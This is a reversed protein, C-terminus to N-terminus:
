EGSKLLKDLEDMRQMVLRKGEDQLEQSAPNGQADLISQKDTAKDYRATYMLSGDPRYFKSEIGTNAQYTLNHLLKGNEGYIARNASKQTGYTHSILRNKLDYEWEEVIRGNEYLGISKLRGKRSYVAMKGNLGIELPTSLKLKTDDPIIVPSIQRMGNDQYFDQIVARGEATRGLLMRYYGGKAPKANERHEADYYAVIQKEPNAIQGVITNDSEFKAITLLNSQPKPVSGCASLLFAAALAPLLIKINM